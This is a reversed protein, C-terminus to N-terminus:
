LLELQAAAAADDEDPELCRPDDNAPSNVLRSAAQGVLTGPSAPRLLKDPSDGGLWDEVAGRELLAPMRQHVAAVPQSAKASKM